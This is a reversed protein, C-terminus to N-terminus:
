ALKSTPFNLNLADLINGVSCTLLVFLKVQISTNLFELFEEFIKTSVGAVYSNLMGHGALYIVWQCAANPNLAFEKKTIFLSNWEKATFYTINISGEPLGLDQLLDQSELTKLHNVKLGLTFEIDRLSSDPTYAKIQDIEELSFMSRPVLLLLYPDIEKIIWNQSLKKVTLAFARKLFNFAEQPTQQNLAKKVTSLEKQSIPTPSESPAYLLKKILNRSVILPCPKQSLAGSLDYFVTPSNYYADAEDLFIMLGHSKLHKESTEELALDSSQNLTVKSPEAPASLHPLGMFFGGLLYLILRISKM